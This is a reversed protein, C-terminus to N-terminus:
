GCGVVVITQSDKPELNDIGRGSITWTADGSDVAGSPAAIACAGGNVGGGHRAPPWSSPVSLLLSADAEPGQETGPAAAHHV